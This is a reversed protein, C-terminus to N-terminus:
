PIATLRHFCPLGWRRRMCRALSLRRVEVASHPSIAAAKSLIRMDTHPKTTIEIKGDEIHFALPERTWQLRNVDFTIM